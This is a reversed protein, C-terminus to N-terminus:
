KKSKNTIEKALDDAGRNLIFYQQLVSILSSVLWYIQLGSPMKMSIFVIMVPMFATMMKMQDNTVSGKSMMKQQFFMLVGNLVPLVFSPDPATLDWFLFRSNYPIVADLSDSRLIRFLSWLIPLQVVAPLCGGFPSVGKKKYLEMTEVNLKQPDSKHKEKLKDIEPQLKKMEKMSKDQKLSLPFLISKIFLTLVIIAVGYNKFIKYIFLLVKELIQSIGSKEKLIIDVNKGFNKIKFASEGEEIYKKLNNVSVVMVDKKMKAKVQNGLADLDSVIPMKGTSDKKIKVIFKATKFKRNAILSIISIKEEKEDIKIVSEKKELSFYTNKKIVEANLSLSFIFVCIYALTIKKM